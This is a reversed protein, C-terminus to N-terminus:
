ASRPWQMGKGSERGDGVTDASEGVKREQGSLLRRINDRHRVVILPGAIASFWIYELPAQGVASLVILTVAGVSAGLISGLSVYRTAAAVPPGILTAALGAWPSLIALSGWGTATGRGGRFGIFVPWNHGVVAAIAAGAETGPQDSVVRAIVVALVAKGMDLLLVLVAASVGVSRLVNTMGSRGSGFDRVDIRKFAWGAVIGFPLSGLVYGVVVTILYDTM